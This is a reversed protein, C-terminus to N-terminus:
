YCFIISGTSSGTIRPDVVRLLYHANFINTEKGENILLFLIFFSHFFAQETMKSQLKKSCCFVKVATLLEYVDLDLLLTDVTKKTHRYPVKRVRKRFSFSQRETSRLHRRTLYSWHPPLIHFLLFTLTLVSIRAVACSAGRPFYTNLQASYDPHNKWSFFNSFEERSLERTYFAHHVRPTQLVHRRQSPIIQAAICREKTRRTQNCKKREKKKKFM